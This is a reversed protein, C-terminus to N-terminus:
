EPEGTWAKGLHHAVGLHDLTRAVVFDVLEEVRTPRHYFGPAAPLVIAGAETVATMNRLHILSLPTERAVLVLRRREKLTVDAAREILNSSAGTAIRSLTGMSCPVVAMGRAPFSGSAIAAGIARLPYRTVPAGRPVTGGLTPDDDGSELGCEARLVERAADSVVLHVPVDAEVLARLARVGYPAGSAGTIALIVGDTARGGM